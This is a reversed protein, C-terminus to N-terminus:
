LQLWDIHKKIIGDNLISVYDADVSNIGQYQCHKNSLLLVGNFVPTGEKVRLRGGLKLPLPTGTKSVHLFRLPEKEYGQIVNKNSIDELILKYTDNTITSKDNDNEQDDDKDLNVETIIKRKVRDVSSKNPDDLEKWEELQAVRSKSINEIWIIRYTTPNALTSEDM